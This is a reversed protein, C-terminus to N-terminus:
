FFAKLVLSLVGAFVAGIMWKLLTFQGDYETLKLRITQIDNRVDKIDAKTAVQMDMLEALSDKQVEAMAEAQKRSFGAEELHQAYKLTDFVMATM